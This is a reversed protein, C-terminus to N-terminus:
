PSRLEDENERTEFWVALLALGKAYPLSRDTCADAALYRERM